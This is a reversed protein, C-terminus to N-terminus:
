QVSGGKTERVRFRNAQKVLEMVSERSLESPQPVSEDRKRLYSQESCITTFPLRMVQIILIVEEEESDTLASVDSNAELPPPSSSTVIQVNHWQVEQM